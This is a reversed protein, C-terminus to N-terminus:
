FIRPQGRNSQRNETQNSKPEWNSGNNRLQKGSNQPKKISNHTTKIELVRAVAVKLSEIRGLQFM